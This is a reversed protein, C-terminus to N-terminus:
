DTPVTRVCYRTETANYVKEVILYNNGTNLLAWSTCSLESIFEEAQCSLKCIKLKIIISILENLTFIKSQKFFWLGCAKKFKNLGARLLYEENNCRFKGDHVVMKTFGNYIIPHQEIIKM